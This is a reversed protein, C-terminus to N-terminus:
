CCVKRVSTAVRNELAAKARLRRRRLIGHYQKANVYVPEEHSFSYSSLLHGSGYPDPNAPFLGGASRPHRATEQMLNEGIARAPVMAGYNEQNEERCVSLLIRERTSGDPDFINVTGHNSGYSWWSQSGSSSLDKLGYADLGHYQEDRKGTQVLNM